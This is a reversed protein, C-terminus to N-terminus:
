DDWFDELMRQTFFQIAYAETEGRVDERMLDEAQQWVHVCEHTVMAAYQAPVLDDRTTMCVLAIRGDGDPKDFFHTTAGASSDTVFSPPNEVGLKKMAKKYARPSTTFGVFYNPLFGTDYWYVKNKM